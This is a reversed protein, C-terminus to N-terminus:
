ILEMILKQKEQPIWLFNRDDGYRTGIPGDGYLLYNFKCFYSKQESLTILDLCEMILIPRNKSLVGKAGRLIALESGECDIKILDINIKQQYEDLKRVPVLIFNENKIENLTANSTFSGFPLYLKTQSSFDALASDFMTINKLNNLQINKELIALLNPNPEFTLIKSKPNIISAELTYVGTYSGIDVILSSRLALKLFIKRSEPEWQQFNTRADLNLADEHHSFYYYKIQNSSIRYVQSTLSPLYSLYYLINSPRKSCLYSLIKFYLDSVNTGLLSKKLLQDLIYRLLNRIKAV